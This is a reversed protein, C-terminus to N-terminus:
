GLHSRLLGFLRPVGHAVHEHATSRLSRYLKVLVTHHSAAAAADSIALLEDAIRGKHERFHREPDAAGEAWHRDLVPLMDPLLRVVGARTMGPKMKQFAAYGAKLAMGSLGGKARVEEDIARVCDDVIREKRAPDAMLAQLTM